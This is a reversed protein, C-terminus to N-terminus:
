QDAPGPGTVITTARWTREEDSGVRRRRTARVYADVRIIATDVPTILTVASTISEGPQVVYPDNRRTRFVRGVSSEVDGWAPWGGNAAWDAARTRTALRIDVPQNDHTLVLPETGVNEFTIDVVLQRMGDHDGLRPALSVRARAGSVRGRVFRWYGWVGGAVVSVTGFATALALVADAWTVGNV